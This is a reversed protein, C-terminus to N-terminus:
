ISEIQWPFHGNSQVPVTVITGNWSYAQFFFCDQVQELPRSICWFMLFLCFIGSLHFFYCFTCSFRFFLSFIHQKLSYIIFYHAMIRKLIENWFYLWWLYNSKIVKVQFNILSNNQPLKWNEMLHERISNPYCSKNRKYNIYVFETSIQAWNDASLHTRNTNSLCLLYKVVYTFGPQPGGWLRNLFQM